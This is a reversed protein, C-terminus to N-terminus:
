CALGDQVAYVSSKSKPGLIKQTNASLECSNVRPLVRVLSGEIYSKRRNCKHTKSLVGVTANSFGAAAMIVCSLRSWSQPPFVSRTHERVLERTYAEM